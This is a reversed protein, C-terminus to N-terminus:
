GRRGAGSGCSRPPQVIRENLEQSSVTALLASPLRGAEDIVPLAPLNYNAMHVAMSLLEANTHPIQNARV